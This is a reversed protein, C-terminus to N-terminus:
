KKCRLIDRNYYSLLYYSLLIAILSIIISCNNGLLIGVQYVIFGIGIPFVSDFFYELIFFVFGM